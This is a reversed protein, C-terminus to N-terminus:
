KEKISALLIEMTLEPSSGSFCTWDSDVAVKFNDDNEETFFAVKSSCWALDCKMMDPRGSVAFSCDYLPKEKADFLASGLVLKTLLEKEQAKDSWQLLNGWIEAYSVDSM